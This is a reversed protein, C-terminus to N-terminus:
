AHEGRFVRALVDVPYTRPLRRKPGPGPTARGSERHEGWCIVLAVRGIVKFRDAPVDPHHLAAYAAVTMKDDM